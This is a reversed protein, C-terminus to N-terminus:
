SHYFIPGLITSPGIEGNFNYVDTVKSQNERYYLVPGPM